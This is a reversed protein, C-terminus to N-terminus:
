GPWGRSSSSSRSGCRRCAPVAPRLLLVDIPPLSRTQVGSSVQGVGAVILAPHAVLRATWPLLLVPPAALLVLARGARVFARQALSWVLAILVVAGLLVYVMPDFATAITLPLAAVWAARLGGARKRRGRRVAAVLRARSGVAGVAVRDRGRQRRAAGRVVSGTVVPLLAYTAAIWVRVRTAPALPKAALYASLGALPVSGLVLVQVAFPASGFLIGALVALMALYPPAAAWSGFGTPHWHRTYTNWLDSAGGPAPLLAGGHLDGGLVNREAVLAVLLLGAVLLM